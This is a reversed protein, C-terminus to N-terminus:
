KNIFMINKECEKLYNHLYKCATINPKSVITEINLPLQLKCKKLNLLLKERQKNYNNCQWLIHNIDQM